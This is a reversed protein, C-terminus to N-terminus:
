IRWVQYSKNKTLQTVDRVRYPTHATLLTMRFLRATLCICTLSCFKSNGIFFNQCVRGSSHAPYRLRYLSQSRAPRDPSRIGTPPPSKECRDLSARHGVWGGTCHTGPREWPDFAAPPRGYQSVVSQKRGELESVLFSHHQVEV